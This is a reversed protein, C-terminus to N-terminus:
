KSGKGGGAGTPTAGGQGKNGAGGGRTARLEAEADSRVKSLRYSEDLAKQAEDTVLAALARDRANKRQQAARAASNDVVKKAQGAAV